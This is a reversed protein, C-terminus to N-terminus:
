PLKRFLTSSLMGELLVALLAPLALYLMLESYDTYRRIKVETRELRDIRDFIEALANENTARFYKGGTEDAIAQLSEEDLETEATVYRRGWIPDDVPIRGGELTGVGITYIKVGMSAAVKAATIPDIEGSNNRGDTLLIVVKSEAQSDKLRDVCTVVANGIATRTRDIMGIEIRKVLETLIGYDLTLPCQTFSSAAFVVMGIRDNVRGDIFDSVVTKAVHLRNHPKFDETAMSGSADLAVIIDIGETLIEQESSGRQPRALAVVIMVLALTRLASLVVRGRSPRGGTAALINGFDSFAFASKPKLRQWFMAFAIPILLFLWM